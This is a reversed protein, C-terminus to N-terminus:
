PSPKDVLQIVARILRERAAELNAKRLSNPASPVMSRDGLFWQADNLMAQLDKPAKLKTQIWELCWAAFRQKGAQEAATLKDAEAARLVATVAVAPFAPLTFAKTSYVATEFDVVAIHVAAWAFTLFNGAIVISDDPTYVAHLLGPPLFATEGANVEIQVIGELEDLADIGTRGDHEKDHYWELNKKTPPAALFVKRGRVVHYYVATGAFDVHWDTWCEATSLLAYADIRSHHELTPWYDALSAARVARPVFREADFEEFVSALALDLQSAPRLRLTYSLSTYGDIVNIRFEPEKSAIEIEQFLDTETLTSPFGMGLESPTARVLFPYEWSPASPSPYLGRLRAEVEAVPVLPVQQATARAAARLLVPVHNRAADEATVSALITDLQQGRQQHLFQAEAAYAPPLGATPLGDPKLSAAHVASAANILALAFRHQQSLNIIITAAAAASDAEADDQAYADLEVVNTASDALHDVLHIAIAVAFARARCSAMHESDVAPDLTAAFKTVVDALYTPKAAPVAVHIAASAGSPSSSTGTQATPAEAARNAEQKFQKTETFLRHVTGPEIGADFSTRHWVGLFLALALRALRRGASAAAAADNADARADAASQMPLKATSKGRTTQRRAARDERDKSRDRARGYQVFGKM